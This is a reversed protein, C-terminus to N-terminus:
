GPVRGPEGLLALHQHTVLNFRLALSVLAARQWDAKGAAGDAPKVRLKHRALYEIHFNVSTRSLRPYGARSLREIIEPVTPIVVSSSDQLRPECLAVLILFYKATQDLPFAAVTQEGALAPVLDPDAYTHRPALVSFVPDEGNVPLVVEAFEFPVPMDLRGPAVKVFEGAGYPNSIVYTARSSRDSILWFDDRARVTGALRSVCCGAVVVDVDLGDGGRGFTVSDGPALEIPQACKPAQVIVTRM